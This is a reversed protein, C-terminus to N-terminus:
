GEEGEGGFESRAADVGARYAAKSRDLREELESRAERATERGSEVAQRLADVRGAVEERALELRSEVQDQVERLRAEAAEKLRTAGERIERQTEEGSRPALLLAIGAGLLAGLLFPALGSGGEREVIVIRGETDESMIFRRV